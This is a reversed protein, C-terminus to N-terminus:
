AMRTRTAATHTSLSLERLVRDLDAQIHAMRKFQLDLERQSARALHEIDALRRELDTARRLAVRRDDSRRQAGNGNSSPEVNRNKKM